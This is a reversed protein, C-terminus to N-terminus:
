KKNLVDGDKPVEKYGSLYVVNEAPNNAGYNEDFVEKDHCSFPHADRFEKTIILDDRSAVGRAQYKAFIEDPLAAFYSIFGTKNKGSGQSEIALDFSQNALVLGILQGAKVKGETIGPANQVHMLRITVGPYADPTVQLEHDYAVDDFNTSKLTGDVPSFIKVDKDMTPMPFKTKDGGGLTKYDPQNADISTFYHKMSRCTEGSGVSFDHGMGSRFKSVMFVKDLEVFDAQIFKPPNDSNIDASVESTGISDAKQTAQVAGENKQDGKYGQDKRQNSRSVALTIGVIVVVLILWPWWLRKLLSKQVLAEEPHYIEKQGEDTPPIQDPM